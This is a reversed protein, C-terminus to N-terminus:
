RVGKIILVQRKNDLSWSELRGLFSQGLLLARARPTITTPVQSIKIGGIELERIIFRSNEIKSGDALESSTGPLFDSEAITGTRLLTSVVDAPVTVESAGSDLVFNLIIAGNIKVPLIYVGNQKVIPIETRASPIGRGAQQQSQLNPKTSSQNKQSPSTRVEDTHSSPKPQWAASLRQAEAIQGPTMEQELLDRDKAGWVSALTLWKYAEVYNKPVGAGLWYSLGLFRQGRGNGQEAATRYWKVAETADKTAGVDLSHRGYIYGLNLQAEVNDQEAAKRYWKVAETDDKQFGEGYHYANGLNNEAPPLGTSCSQSVM